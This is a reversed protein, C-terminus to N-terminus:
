ITHLDGYLKLWKQTVPSPQSATRPASKHRVYKKKVSVAGTVDGTLKLQSQSMFNEVWKAPKSRKNGCLYYACPFSMSFSMVRLQHIQLPPNDPFYAKALTM